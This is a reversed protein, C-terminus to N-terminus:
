QCRFVSIPVFRGSPYPRNKERSDPDSLVTDPVARKGYKGCEEDAVSQASRFTIMPDDVWVADPTSGLVRSCGAVAVLVLLVAAIRLITM